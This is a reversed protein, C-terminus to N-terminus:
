WCCCPEDIQSCKWRSKLGALHLHMHLDARM